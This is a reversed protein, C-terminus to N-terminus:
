TCVAQMARETADTLATAPDYKTATAGAGCETCQVEAIWYRGDPQIRKRLAGGCTHVYSGAAPSSPREPQRFEAWADAADTPCSAMEHPTCGCRKCKIRFHYKPHDEYKMSIEGSCWCKPLRDTITPIDTSEPMTEKDNTTM